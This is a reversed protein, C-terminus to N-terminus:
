KENTARMATVLGIWFAAVLYGGAVDSPYHMGLYVRSFGIAGSLLLAGAWLAASLLLGRTRSTILCALAGYLCAAYLAHGSPFSYSAPAAGFYAEPRTRAFLYKLTNELIVAGAMVIILDIAAHRWGLRWFIVAAFIAVAPWVFASGAFSLAIAIATLEGSTWSHIATRIADDLPAPAGSGAQFALAVFLVASLGAAAAGAIRITQLGTVGRAGM